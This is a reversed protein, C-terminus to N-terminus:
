GAGVMPMEVKHASLVQQVPESHEIGIREFVQGLREANRYEWERLLFEQV